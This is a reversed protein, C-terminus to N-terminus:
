YHRGAETEKDTFSCHLIECIKKKKNHVNEFINKIACPITAHVVMYADGLGLCKKRFEKFGFGLCWAMEGMKVLSAIHKRVNSGPWQWM